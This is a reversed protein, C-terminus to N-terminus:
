EDLLRGLTEPDSTPLKCTYNECVYAAAKGDLPGRDKLMPVTELLDESV